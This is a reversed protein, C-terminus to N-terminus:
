WSKDSAVRTSRSRTDSVVSRIMTSERSVNAFTCSNARDGPTTGPTM